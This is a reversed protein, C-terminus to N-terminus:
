LYFVQYIVELVQCKGSESTELPRYNILEANVLKLLLDDKAQSIWSILFFSLRKTASFSVFILVLMVEIMLENVTIHKKIIHLFYFFSCYSIHHLFTLRVSLLFTYGTNQKTAEREFQLEKM